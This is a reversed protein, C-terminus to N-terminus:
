DAAEPRTAAHAFGRASSGAFEALERVLPDPSARLRELAAALPLGSRALTRYAERLARVAAAGVGARRLGVVNVARARAPVGDTVVFPLCDQVVKANGGIMALRGVRCFQHVVVGGSLFAGAGIRVHGALAVNNALMAGDEVVCEHAVHAYAMLFCGSGVTTAAGPKSARHLTVGERIRNGDGITLYSEGGAFSTDQPEGGLVAGEHVVNDRGLTTFRKVVAHARVETGPGIRTAAEVVAYPGITVGEALRADPDVLATPHIAMASWDLATRELLVALRDHHLVRWRGTALLARAQPQAAPWLVFRAGSRDVIGEWGPVGEVVQLYLRLTEQDYVADARGDVFVPFRGGGRWHLYGGWNYLNFVRGHTAHAELATVAASPFFRTETLAAFAPAAALPQPALRAAAVALLAVPLGITLLKGGPGTAPVRVLALAEAIIPASAVAFLPIIRRSALAMALTVLALALGALPLEALRPRERRLTLALISVLLAAICWPFLPSVLPGPLLPSRWEATHRWVSTWDLAYALPWAVIRPGHPNAITALFSGGAVLLARRRLRRERRVVAPALLIALALLGYAFSGHLNVWLGFVLPLWSAPPREWAGHIVLALGLIAYLNPRVDLFPAATAAAFAAALTAPADGTRRRIARLLVLFTAVVVLWKWYVLTELGFTREWLALTLGSLWEHQFWAAGERTFSFPDTRPLSRYELMLRGNALHWYLDSGALRAFGFSWFFAAGAVMWLARELRRSLVAPETM